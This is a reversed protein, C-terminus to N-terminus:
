SAGRPRRPGPVRRAPPAPPAQEQLLRTELGDLVLDLGFAFEEDYGPPGEQAQRNAHESIRDIQPFHTLDHQARFTSVSAAREPGPAPFHAEQLTFGYLFSDLVLFASMSLRASFGARAFVALVAECAALRVPGANRRSESLGPAWPHRLFVRRASASRRRLAEKWPLGASPGEIEGMVAEVLGDLLEDKSAVHNYLSMAEVGLEQALRRMSLAAPGERDVLALAADLVRERTLPARRRSGGPGEPSSRRRSGGPGEGRAATSPGKKSRKRAETM